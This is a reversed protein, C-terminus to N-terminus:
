NSAEHLTITRRFKRTFYGSFIGKQTDPTSELPEPHHRPCQWSGGAEMFPPSDRCWSGAKRSTYKPQAMAWATLRRGRVASARTRDRTLGHPNQPPCFPVPVPKEGSYKPKGRDIENWRHEMVRFFSFILWKWWLTACYSKLSRHTRLM